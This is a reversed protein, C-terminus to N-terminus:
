VVRLRCKYMRLRNRCIRIAEDSGDIGIFARNTEVAAQLTTGSGCYFDLVIDKPKSSTRVILKLMELNKETPYSPYQPDKFEWVDQLLTGRQMVEHAYIKLRPNGTRSWEIRGDRELEGLKKPPHRWHRGPPPSLNRWKRGTSGNRTEGPAHLPATTYKGVKDTKTFQKMRSNSVSVRPENWTFRASKTYFLITDKMSPYGRQPFNKPNSKIRSISNRFKDAGFIDDLINKVDYAIKCDIHLYLSGNRALLRHAVTLRAKLMDFYDDGRITDRYALVSDAEASITAGRGGSIRFVNNTAFPPDIYILAIRGAYRRLSKLGALNEGHILTNM